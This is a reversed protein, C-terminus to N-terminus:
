DVVFMVRCQSLFSLNRSSDRLMTADSSSIVVNSNGSGETKIGKVIIPNNAVRENQRAVEVDKGYGVIGQQIAFERSVYASGYVERGEEDIVKPSMAPHLELGKTDIILGTYIPSGASPASQGGTAPLLIDALEGTIPMEIIVEVGGDDFYKKDVVKAGRVFGQVRSQIVDSQTMANVVTTESDIRVGKITELLNRMADVKAAREAGLRAVSINPSSPSPAGSGLARIVSTTWNVEGQGITQIVQGSNGELLGGVAFSFLVLFFSLGMIGAQKKM